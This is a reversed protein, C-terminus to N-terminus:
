NILWIIICPEIYFTQPNDVNYAPWESQTHKMREVGDDEAACINHINTIAM